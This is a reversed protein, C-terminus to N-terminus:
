GTRKCGVTENTAEGGEFGLTFTRTQSGAYNSMLALLAGSDIGSSLFIGRPVDSRM